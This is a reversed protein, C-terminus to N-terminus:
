PLEGRKRKPNTDVPESQKFLGRVWDKQAETDPVPRGRVREIATFAADVDQGASALLCAALLSSRGIGQRCHVVVGQGTALKQELLQVIAATKQASANWGM